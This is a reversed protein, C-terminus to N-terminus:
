GTSIHRIEKIESELESLVSSVIAQYSKTESYINHQRIYSPGNSLVEEIGALQQSVGLKDATEKLSSLIDEVINGIPRSNGNLDEVYMADLGHQSSRFRNELEIWHPLPRLLKEQAEDAHLKLYEILSQCFAALAIAEGVTPQTDMIRIELTGFDPRPRLDWHFDKFNRCIGAISATRFFSCFHEWDEFYPPLGYTRAGALIRQRYCAHITDYGRWFPSSASLALLVPLYPRLHKMLTITEEGSSMGVHVHISFTLYNYCPYGVREEISLYRPLPTISALRECFPHTGAGCLALGISMCKQHLDRVLYKLNLDLEQINRCVKSMVEVSCQIFEPKIYHNEPYLEMLSIIADALDLTGADLLQLEIEMGITRENSWSYKNLEM